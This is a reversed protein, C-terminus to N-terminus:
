QLVESQAAAFQTAANPGSARLTQEHVAREVLLALRPHPRLSLWSMRTGLLGGEHWGGHLPDAEREPALAIVLDIRRPRERWGRPYHAGVDILGLGRVSLRNRLLDPATAEIGGAGDARLRVVDDSILGHGRDLLELALLSKGLGADGILLVGHGNVDVATGPVEVDLLRWVLRDLRYAVIDDALATHLARQGPPTAADPTAVWLLPRPPKAVPDWRRIPTGPASGFWRPAFLPMDLAGGLDTGTEVADLTTAIDAMALRFSM